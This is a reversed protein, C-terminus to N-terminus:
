LLCRWHFHYELGFTLTFENIKGSVLICVTGSNIAVCDDQNYVNAGAITVDSIHGLSDTDGAFNDIIM